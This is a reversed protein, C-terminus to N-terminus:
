NGQRVSGCAILADNHYSIVLVKNYNNVMSTEVDEPCGGAHCQPSDLKPGTIVYSVVDLNPSLKFIRNTAGAFFANQRPDYVFHSFYSKKQTKLVDSTSNGNETIATSTLTEVERNINLLPLEFQAVIDNPIFDSTANRLNKSIVSLLVIYFVIIRHSSLSFYKTNREM